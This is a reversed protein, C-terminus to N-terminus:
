NSNNKALRGSQMSPRLHTLCTFLASVTDAILMTWALVVILVDLTGFNGFVTCISTSSINGDVYGFRYSFGHSVNTDLYWRQHPSLWCLCFCIGDGHFNSAVQEWQLHVGQSPGVDWLCLLFNLDLHQQWIPLHRQTCLHMHRLRGPCIKKALFGGFIRIVGLVTAAMVYYSDKIRAEKRIEKISQIVHHGTLAESQQKMNDFTRPYKQEQRCLILHVVRQASESCYWLNNKKQEQNYVVLASTKRTKSWQTIYHPSGQRMSAWSEGVPRSGSRDRHRWLWSLRSSNEKCDPKRALLLVPEKSCRTLWM